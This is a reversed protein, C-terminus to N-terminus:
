VTASIQEASIVVECGPKIVEIQQALAQQAAPEGHVLHIKKPGQEINAVFRILDHQDAHASYGSLSHINAKVAIVQGNIEVQRAGQSLRRGLTGKAQFGVLVVDTRADPLLAELYNMIRGGQCMGSAAVVIAPAHTSKLRNVIAQHQSHSQVTICQEFSLPHRGINKRSVAEKEWLRHFLDYQETVKEALPSDLIIPLEQWAMKENNIQLLPLFADAILSEIDFLLEQTRGVSFAPILITGGDLLSRKIIQKLSDSREAQRQHTRNGYTSELVLVDARQPSVPDVLLPTNSPGLDGSFVVVERSPLVVEVYASGLIHGAQRFYLTLRDGSPLTVPAQCDFPVPRLLGKVLTLFKSRQHKNLNLQIKLGDDLMLPLLAATAETAYIPGRFGAALLWPIRGIHDIHCHTLVLAQIHGVPFDIDLSASVEEGQFLGCDVLIGYQEWRLEHCSGTVGNYAGHHIIQM